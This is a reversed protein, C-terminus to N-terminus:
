ALQLHHRIVSIEFGNWLLRAVPRGGDSQWSLIIGTGQVTGWKHKVLDGVKLMNMLQKGEEDDVCSVM